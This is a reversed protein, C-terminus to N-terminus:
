VARELFNCNEAMVRRLAPSKKTKVTRYKKKYMMERLSHISFLHVIIKCNNNNNILRHDEQGRVGARPAASDECDVYSTESDLHSTLCAMAVFPNFSGHELMFFCCENFMVMIVIGFM